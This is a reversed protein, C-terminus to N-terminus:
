FSLERQSLVREATPVDARSTLDFVGERCRLVRFDLEAEVMAAVASTLELEGRVPDPEVARCHGFVAPTFRFLNMSVWLQGDERYEDPNEPKEVISLLRGGSSRVVAFDRARGPAINGQRSLAVPDFAVVACADEAVSTLQELAPDPYLNDGNCMVFPADAAFDEAALVADATGRPEEQVACSVTAASESEIREAAERMLDADPAVVFCIDSLGARILSDVIYDLFPRGAVPMLVKLGRSALAEREAGLDVGADKQMRTGLGRALIVAKKM